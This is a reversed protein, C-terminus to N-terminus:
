TVSKLTFVTIEPRSLLRVNLGVTGIGRNTYLRMTGHKSPSEFDYWGRPFNKAGTPLHIPGSFPACIQGGHSHGSLMLGFQGTKAMEPAFDPEHGMLIAASNAPIKAAIGEIDPEGLLFDDLGALYLKDNGREFIHIENNLLKVGAEVITKRSNIPWQPDFEGIDHNGVIGWVGLKASLPELVEILKKSSEPTPAITFFDGTIVVADANMQAISRSVGLMFESAQGSDIHIDSIQVLKFGDFSRPLNPLVVDHYSTEVFTPEVETGWAVTPISIAALGLTGRTAAKFLGRRSVSTKSNQKAPSSSLPQRVLDDTM